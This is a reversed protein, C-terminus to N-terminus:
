DIIDRNYWGGQHSPEAPDDSSDEPQMEELLPDSMYPRPFTHGDSGVPDDPGRPPGKGPSPEKFRPAGGFDGFGNLRRM